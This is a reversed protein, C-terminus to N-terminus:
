EPAQYVMRGGVMTLRVRNQEDLVFLDASKGPAISGTENYIGLKKAPTESAM